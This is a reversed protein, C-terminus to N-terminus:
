AIWDEMVEGFVDTLRYPRGQFKYTLKTHDLGLLHLITAQVDHVHVANKVANMGIADTEGYRFGRKVGGGAFFLPFASRLHDRGLDQPNFAAQMMPTRGFEGGFIVLTDDLLGRRDLDVILAAIGRDVQLCREPLGTVLNQDGGGHHDWGGHKLEVFRVGREIMRRALLCNNSFTTKGPETGYLAHTAESESAIDMLEPVSSQMRYALEYSEIRTEIEPDGVQAFAEANLANVEDLIRRRLSADIGPPDSLYLVADGDSRFQVGQHVSPLFGSGWCVTGCRGAKGSSLVVYAPLDTNETGLGYSVWAGITPRGMRASGTTFLLQAPVHNVEDTHVTPVYTFYDAVTAFNPLLESVHLGCEGAPRKKWRPALLNPRAKADLFAFRQGEMYEDPVPKLDLETLLPKHDFLDIQSPAGIMNLYVVSRARPRHHPQKPALPGSKSEAARSDRALLHSLALSAFSIGGSALFRRRNLAAALVEGDRPTRDDAV